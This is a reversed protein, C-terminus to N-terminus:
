LCARRSWRRWWRANPRTACPRGLRAAAASGEDNSDVVVVLSMVRALAALRAEGLQTVVKEARQAIAGQVGGVQHFADFGLEGDASRLRYLELLCHQLLPLADPSAAADQCLVDDLRAHSAPDVGFRLGAAQAPLRIMQAMDTFSPPALDFHSGNQKGDMLLPYRALDPYFDNRCAIIVLVAGSRALVELLDLLAAREADATRGPIFLSEFRDIFVGFLPTGGDHRVAALAARMRALLNHQGDARGQELRAGLSLASDGDFLPAAGAQLDLLASALATMLTQEGQDALDFCVTSLLAPRALGSAPVLAPFLGARVLSTKGVGSPGLVLQLALGARIQATAAALLRRTAEERGFFVDAHDEDFAQLGLFPSEARWRSSAAPPASPAFEVPALTRYGRKRVTEIYLPATATDGLLRRLQNLTKHVPNDGYVHTHWCQTLLEDASVIKGAAKCLIVLVEMARPEMQRREAGHRISNSPPEVVWEGFRFQEAKM